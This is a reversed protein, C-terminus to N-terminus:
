NLFRFIEPNKDFWFDRLPWFAHIKYLKKEFNNLFNYLYIGKSELGLLLHWASEISSAGDRSKREFQWEMHLKETLM